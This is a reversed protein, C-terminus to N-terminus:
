MLLGRGLVMDFLRFVIVFVFVFRFRFRLGIWGLGLGGSLLGLSFGFDLRTFEM